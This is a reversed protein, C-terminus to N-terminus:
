AEEAAELLGPPPAIVVVGDGPRVEPVFEAIFPVLVPGSERTIELLDQGPLHVVATVSGVPAGDRLAVLGVLQHDYWSDPEDPVASPDVAVTLLQNRLNEVSSRDAAEAFRLLLRGSHWRASAVTLPFAGPDTVLVAGPAFRTEPDDTRLEITAEGGVGHARGIRGVVVRV